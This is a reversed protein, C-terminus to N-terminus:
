GTRRPPGSSCRPSILEPDRGGQETLLLPRLRLDVLYLRLYPANSPLITSVPCNRWCSRGTPSGSSDVECTGSPVMGLRLPWCRARAGYGCRGPAPIGSGGPFPGFNRRPNIGCSSERASAPCQILLHRGSRSPPRWRSSMFSESM